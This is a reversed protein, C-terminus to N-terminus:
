VFITWWYDGTYGAGLLLDEWETVSLVIKATADYSILNDREKEDRYSHVMIFKNHGVREIEQIAMVCEDYEMAYLMSLSIVLDFEDDEFPMREESARIINKRIKSHEIAYDSKDYGVIDCGIVNRIDYLLFGKGCGYDLVKDDQKLGYYKKLKKAKDVWRGDYYHGQYGPFNKNDWYDFGLEAVKSRQQDTINNPKLNKKKFEDGFINIEM